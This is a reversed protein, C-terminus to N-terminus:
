PPLSGTLSVPFLFVCTAPGRPRWAAEQSHAFVVVRQGPCAQLVVGANATITDADSFVLELASGFIVAVGLPIPRVAAPVLLEVIVITGRQPVGSRILLSPSHRGAKEKARRRAAIVVFAGRAQKATRRR